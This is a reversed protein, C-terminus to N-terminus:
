GHSASASLTPAKAAAQAAPHRLWRMELYTRRRHLNWRWSADTSFRRRYEANALSERDATLKRDDAYFPAIKDAPMGPSALWLPLARSLVEVDTLVKTLGTGTAPCVSQLADGILVVGDVRPPEARYLDIAQSQVKSTAAWDGILRTLRPVLRDLVPRPHSALQHMSQDDRNPYGFVNVRMRGPVRFMTIFDLGGNLSDAWYTLADFDFPKGDARAIDFGVSVSHRKRIENREVGLKRLLNGSVGAALIVIRASLSEGTDLMITQVDAGPAIHSARALHQTVDGPIQARVANVIESYDLGYQEIPVTRLVRGGHAELITHIRAAHPLVGDALGLRRFADAQNPEIKEAKFTPRCRPRPDILAVRLGQRGLVAAAASGALGAGIIACDFATSDQTQDPV